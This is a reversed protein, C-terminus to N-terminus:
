DLSILKSYNVKKVFPIVGLEKRAKRIVMEDSDCLKAIQSDSFGYRKANKFVEKSITPVYAELGKTDNKFKSYDESIGKSINFINEL